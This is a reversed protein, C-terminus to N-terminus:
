LIIIKSIGNNIIIHRKVTNFSIESTVLKEKDFGDSNLIQIVRNKKFHIIEINTDAILMNVNLGATTLYCPNM